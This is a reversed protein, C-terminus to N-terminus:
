PPTLKTQNPISQNTKPKTQSPKSQNTPNGGSCDWTVGGWRSSARGLRVQQLDDMQSLNQSCNYCIKSGFYKINAKSFQLNQFSGRPRHMLPSESQLHLFNSIQVKSVEWPPSVNTTMMHTAPIVLLLTLPLLWM